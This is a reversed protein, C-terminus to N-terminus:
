WIDFPQTLQHKQKQKTKHRGDVIRDPDCLVLIDAVATEEPLLIGFRRNIGSEEGKPVKKKEIWIM